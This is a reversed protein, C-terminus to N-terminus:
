VEKLALGRERLKRLRKRIGSMSMGVLHATEELTYGEVYHYWAITKTTEDERTFIRDLFHRTLVLEDANDQSQIEFDERTQEIRKQQNQRRHLENISLNTAMTYLLSSPGRSDLTKQKRLLVVFVEQMIDLAADEDKLISLCRRFVMAGYTRYLDDINIQM